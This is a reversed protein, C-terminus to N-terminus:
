FWLGFGWGRPWKRAYCLIVVLRLPVIGRRSFILVNCLGKGNFIAKCVFVRACLEDLSRLLRGDGSALRLLVDEGHGSDRLIGGDSDGALEIDKSDDRRGFARVDTGAIDRRSYFGVLDDNDAYDAGENGIVNEGLRSFLEVGRRM